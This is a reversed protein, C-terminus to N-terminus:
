SWDEYMRSPTAKNMESNNYRGNYLLPKGTVEYFSIQGFRMGPFVLTELQVTIELTIHGFFGQDILGACEHNKIFLRGISSKGTVVGAYKDSGFIEKTYGLYAKGPRLLFGTVPIKHVVCKMPVRPDVCMHGQPNFPDGDFHTSNYELIKIEDGLVYDYSNPNIQTENFPDIKINGNHVEDAIRPGTLWSM